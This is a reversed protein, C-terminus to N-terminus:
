DQKLPLKQQQKTKSEKLNMKGTVLDTEKSKNLERRIVGSIKVVV